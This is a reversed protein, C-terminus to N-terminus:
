NNINEIKRKLELIYYIQVGIYYCVVIIAFVVIIYIWWQIRKWMKLTTVVVSIVVLIGFSLLSIKRVRLVEQSKDRELEEIRIQRKELEKQTLSQIEATYAELVEKSNKIIKKVINMIEQTQNNRGIKLLHGRAFESAYYKSDQLGQFSDILIGEAINESNWKNICYFMNKIERKNIIRFVCSRSAKFSLKNEEVVICIDDAKEIFFKNLYDYGAGLDLIVLDYKKRWERILEDFGPDIEELLKETLEDKEVDNNKAFMPIFDFNKEICLPKYKDPVVSDIGINKIILESLIKQITNVTDGEVQQDTRMSLYTTAGNTRLDCDVLLVKLGYYACFHAINIFLSTKGVGGKGSVTVIIQTKPFDDVENQIPSEQERYDKLEM